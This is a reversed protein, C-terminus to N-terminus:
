DKFTTLDGDTLTDITNIKRRVSNYAMEEVTDAAFIIKRIAVSKGGGRVTRGLAQILQLADFSPSLLSVRPFRGDTDHLNISVGGVATIAILMRIENTQFLRVTERIEDPKQKGTVLGAEPFWNHLADVSAHFNVFCIVSNGEDLLEEADERFVVMKAEESAQRAKVFDGLNYLQTVQKVGQIQRLEPVIVGKNMAGPIDKTSISVMKRKEKLDDHIHKMLKLAHPSARFKWGRTMTKYCQHELLFQRYNNLRHLGLIYGMAKLKLPSDAMTATLCLMMIEANFTEILINGLQSTMGSMVHAEDFIVLEPKDVWKCYFNKYIKGEYERRMTWVKMRKHTGYRLKEYNVVDDLEIELDDSAQHWVPITSKPCVIFPKLGLRQAAWLATYTKGTGTKSTDVIPNSPNLNNVIDQIKQEQAPFPTIM